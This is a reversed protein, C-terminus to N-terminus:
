TAAAAGGRGSSSWFVFPSGPMVRAGASGSAFLRRRNRGLPPDAAAKPTQRRRAGRPRIVAPRPPRACSTRWARLGISPVARAPGAALRRLFRTSHGVLVTQAGGTRSSIHAAPGGGLVPVRPADTRPLRDATWGGAKRDATRGAWAGRSAQGARVPAARVRKDASAARSPATVARSKEHRSPPGGDTRCGVAGRPTAPAQRAAQTRRATGRPTPGGVMSNRNRQM